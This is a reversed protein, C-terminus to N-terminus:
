KFFLALLVLLGAGSTLAFQKVRAKMQLSMILGTLVILFLSIGLVKQLHKLLKPGHGKHVEIIKLLFNPSDKYLSFTGNDKMKFNYYDRTTPRTQISSGRDKIYEFTYGSDIEKLLSAIQQKKGVSSNFQIGEKVLKSEVSGKNGFLYFTGTVAILFLFPTFFSSLYFHINFLTQRKM